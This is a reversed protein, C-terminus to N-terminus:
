FRILSPNVLIISKILDVQSISGGKQWNRVRLIYNQLIEKRAGKELLRFGCNNRFWTGTKCVYDYSFSLDALQIVNYETTSNVYTM